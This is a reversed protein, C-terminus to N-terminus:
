KTKVLGNSMDIIHEDDDITYNDQSVEDQIPDENSYVEVSEIVDDSTVQTWEIEPRTDALEMAEYEDVASVNIYYDQYKRGFVRFTKM